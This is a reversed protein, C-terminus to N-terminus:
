RWFHVPTQVPQGNARALDAVARRLLMPSRTMNSSLDLHISSQLMQREALALDDAYVLVSLLGQIINEMQKLRAVIRREQIEDGRTKLGQPKPWKEGALCPHHPKQELIPSAKIVSGPTMASFSSCAVVFSAVVIGRYLSLAMASSIRNLKRTIYVVCSRGQFRFVQIYLACAVLKIAYRQCM